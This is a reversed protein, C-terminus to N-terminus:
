CSTATFTAQAPSVPPTSVGVCSSGWPTNWGTVSVTKGSTPTDYFGFTFLQSGWNYAVPFISASQEEEEPGSSYHCAGVDPQQGLNITTGTDSMESFGFVTGHNNSLDTEGMAYVGAQTGDARIFSEISDGTSVTQPASVSNFDGTFCGGTQISDYQMRWAPSGYLGANDYFLGAQIWHQNNSNMANVIQLLNSNTNSAKSNFDMVEKYIATGPASTDKVIGVGKNITTSATLPGASVTPTMYLKAKYPNSEAPGVYDVTASTSNWSMLYIWGTHGHIQQSLSRELNAAHTPLVSHDTNMDAAYSTQTGISPAMIAAVIAMMAVTQINKSLNTKFNTM